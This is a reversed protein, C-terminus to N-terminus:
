KRQFNNVLGNKLSANVKELTSIKTRLQENVKCYEDCKKDMEDFKQKRVARSVRSAANNKRRRELYYNLDDATKIDGARNVNKANKTRKAKPESSSSASDTTLTRKCLFAHDHEVANLTNTSSDFTNTNSQDIDNTSPPDPYSQSHFEPSVPRLESFSSSLYPTFESVCRTEPNSANLVTMLHDFSEFRLFESLTRQGLQTDSDLRVLNDGNLRIDDLGCQNVIDQIFLMDDDTLQECSKELVNGNNNFQGSTKQISRLFLSLSRWSTPTLIRRKPFSNKRTEVEELLVTATSDSRILPVSTIEVTNSYSSIQHQDEMFNDHNMM